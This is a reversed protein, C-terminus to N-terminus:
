GKYGAFWPDNYGMNAQKNLALNNPNIVEKYSKGGEAQVMSSELTLGAWSDAYHLLLAFQTQKCSYPENGTGPYVGDHTLVAQICAPSLDFFKTLVLISKMPVTFFVHPDNNYSFPKAPVYGWKAQSATPKAFNYYSMCPANFAKGLDHYLSALILEWVKIENEMKLAKCLVGAVQCVNLSHELLGHEWSCHYGPSAPATLYSTQNEVFDFFDEIPNDEGHPYPYDDLVKQVLKKYEKLMSDYDRAM